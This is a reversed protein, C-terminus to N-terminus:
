VNPLHITMHDKFVVINLVFVHLDKEESPLYNLKCPSDQVKASIDSERLLDPLTDTRGHSSPATPNERENEKFAELQGLSSCSCTFYETSLSLALASRSVQELAIFTIFAVIEKASVCSSTGHQSLRSWYCHDM